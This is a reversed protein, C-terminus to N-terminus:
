SFAASTSYASVALRVRLYCAQPEHPIRVALAGRGGGGHKYNCIAWEYGGSVVPDRQSVRSCGIDHLMRFNGSRKLDRLGTVGEHQSVGEGCCGRRM